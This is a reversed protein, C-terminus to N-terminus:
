LCPTFAAYSRHQSQRVSRTYPHSSFASPEVTKLNQALTAFVEDSLPVHNLVTALAADGLVSSHLSLPDLPRVTLM